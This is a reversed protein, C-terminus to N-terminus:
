RRMRRRIRRMSLYVFAFWALAVVAGAGGIWWVWGSEWAWAELPNRYAIIYPEGNM